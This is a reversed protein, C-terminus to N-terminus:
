WLEISTKFTISFETDTVYQALIRELFLWYPMSLHAFPMTPISNIVYPTYYPGGFSRRRSASLREDGSIPAYSTTEIGM